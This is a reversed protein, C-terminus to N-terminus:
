CGLLSSRWAGTRRVSGLRNLVDTDVEEDLIVADARQGFAQAFHLVVAKAGAAFEDALANSRPHAPHNLANETLARQDRRV